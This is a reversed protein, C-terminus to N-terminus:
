CNLTYDGNIAESIVVGDAENIYDKFTLNSYDGGYLKLM